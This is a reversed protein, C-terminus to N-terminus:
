MSFLESVKTNMSTMITTILSSIQTRFILILAVAIVALAVEAIIEKGGQEKKTMNGEWRRLKMMFEQKWINRM